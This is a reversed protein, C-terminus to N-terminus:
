RLPHRSRRPRYRLLFRRARANGLVTNLTTHVGLKVSCPFCNSVSKLAKLRVGSLEAQRVILDVTAGALTPAALPLVGVIQKVLDIKLTAAAARMSDLLCLV